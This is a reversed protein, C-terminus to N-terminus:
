ENVSLQRRGFPCTGSLECEGCRPKRSKCVARGHEILLYTLDTWRNKPFHRMLDREIKVPDAHKSLGLRQSLRRVHTDVAIGEVKGFANSLIINATKRGIGPLKVLQEMTDPLVGDHDSLLRQCLEQISRAKNRFFGTSHIAAELELRDALAFAEVTPYTKFLGPTVRNVRVDTCQASLITAIALELPTRYTLM